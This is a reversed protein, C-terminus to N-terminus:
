FRTPKADSVKEKNVYWYRYLDSCRCGRADKEGWIFHSLFGDGAYTLRCGCKPCTPVSEEYQVGYAM